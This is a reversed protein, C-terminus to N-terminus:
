DHIILDEELLINDIIGSTLRSANTTYFHNNTFFTRPNTTSIIEGDFLMSCNDSYRAAFEVDHTVMLTTIGSNKLLTLIQGLESKAIPDLGKGPEDLVLLTPSTLLLKFLAAKQLEGGSLDAPNSNYISPIDAFFVYTKILDELINHQIRLSKMLAEYDDIITSKVFCYSPNQPLYGINGHINLKGSYQKRLGCIISVLTTKGSGNGGMLSRIEGKYCTISAGRLVDPSNKEYRFYLEKANIIEEKSNLVKKENSFTSENISSSSLSQKISSLIPRSERINLPLKNISSCNYLMRTCTPLFSVIDSNGTIIQGAANYPNSNTLLSGNDIILVKDAMSFLEETNHECMIITLGLERNLRNIMYHFESRSIPDLQSTPEDLLLLRPNMVMISALNLMQKQGGSLTHIDSNMMDEIGFFTAMEAIRLRIEASKIGLNELGFALEEAVTDCVIQSDPNQFVYGIDTAIASKDLSHCDQGFLKLEGTLKGFPAINRKIHRLLTTKGCGSKGCILVFEGENITFSIDNLTPFSQSEYIFSLNKATVIDM